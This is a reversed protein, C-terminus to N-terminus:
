AGMLMFSHTYDTQYSTSNVTAWSTTGSGNTQLVQGSSGAGTPLTMTWTGAAAAPQITVLGSTNGALGLTGLTTGAKGVHLLTSPADTGIGVRNSSDLRMTEANNSQLSLQSGALGGFFGVGSAKYGSALTYNTADTVWFATTSAAATTVHLRASPSTNGVGVNGGPALNLHTTGGTSITKTGTASSFSYIATAASHTLTTSSFTKAGSFTQTQGLTAVTENANPFTYTKVSTAPGSVQFFANGTGGRGAALTGTWGLTLSTAQLLANSPSGGLTMTVNTDDTKTLASGSLNSGDAWAITKRTPGTTTTFYLSDTTFEMAGAEPATLVTGSTLKIPATSATATGAKLHLVATPTTQGIGVNGSALLISLYNASEAPDTILFKTADAKFYTYNSGAGNGLGLRQAWLYYGDFRGTGTTYFNGGSEIKSLVSGTSDQWEQLNASQSTAGKIVGGISGAAASQIAFNASTQVSTTNKIMGTVNSGDTWAITKRTPGTTTTFYLSDSNFEMAGAEPSALVTGSNFKLPATGATATGAKITITKHRGSDADPTGPNVDDHEKLIFDNLLTGWTGDDSGVTPLRQPM